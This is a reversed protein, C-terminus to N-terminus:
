PLVDQYRIYRTERGCLGDQREMLLPRQRADLWITRTQDAWALTLPRLERVQGMVQVTEPQGEHYHLTVLCPTFSAAADLTVAEVQGEGTLGALLSLGVTAPFWFPAAAFEAEHREHGPQERVVTLTANEFLVTGRVQQYPGFFRFRLREPEGQPNLILHFLSSQGSEAQRADLDVRLFRYGAAADTLRWNEIAGTPQDNREYVLRGSAVLNEYPQEHLLFRM